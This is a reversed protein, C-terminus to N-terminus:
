QPWLLEELWMDVLLAYDKLDIIGDNYMNIAPDQPRLMLYLPQTFPTTKGALSAVEGQSLARSYVRLEDILGNFYNGSWLGIGFNRTNATNLTATQRGTLMGDAYTRSEDGATNGDYVIALHVWKSVSPYEFDFDYGPYGYRQARWMNPEGMTRLSFNQGNVNAGMDFIGGNNFARTYVWAAVTRAKGGGIGLTSATVHTGVYQGIGNLNIAQGLGSKSAAYGPNTGCPDGNRGKGSTDLLNNEFQYYAELNTNSPPVPTVLYESILWNDTLISLDPYDVVCDNSFDGVPRVLDPFCRPLYVRIDDVYLTGIGVHQPNSRNGIGITIKKILKPNVGTFAKMDIDWQQWTNRLVANPDPHIVTATKPTPSSDQLTVYLPAVINSKIGIDRHAWIGSGGTVSVSSFKATCTLAADHATLALGVYFPPSITPPTRTATALPRVQTWTLGDPSYYGSFGYNDLVLKVYQPAVVHWGVNNSDSLGGTANRYQFAAGSTPTIYMAVHTSNADLSGRIMVGAKAWVNTNSVSDVKAILTVPIGNAQQYAYHFEDHFWTERPRTMDWIDAGSATITYTGPPSEVFSGVSAPWGRFWLSLAKVGYGTWDQSTNFTRDAESYNFWPPAKTNDYDLPMSQMGGHVFAATQEAFPPTGYGVISGTNNGPKGPPPDVTGWGDIWNEWIRKPYYDNYDEFDEVILYDAVTFSWISREM